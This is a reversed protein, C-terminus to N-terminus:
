NFFEIDSGSVDSHVDIVQVTASDFVVTIGIDDQDLGSDSNSDIDDESDNMELDSRSSDWM